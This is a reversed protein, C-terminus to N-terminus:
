SVRRRLKGWGPLWKGARSAYTLYRDGHMAMMHHEEQGIQLHLALATAVWLAASWWAPTLLAWGALFGLVGTFIPNRIFRFPGATVLETPREDIGARWSAGMAAQAWVTLALGLAMLAWGPARMWEAALLAAGALAALWVASARKM